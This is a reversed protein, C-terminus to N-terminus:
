KETYRRVETPQGNRASELAAEVTACIARGARADVITDRSSEIAQVFNEMLLYDNDIAQRRHRFEPAPQGRYYVAVEPRAESVILAGETGLVHLKIEGIDPHSAVGIRGICLTGLIDRDMELSVTALDDVHNDANVQHFHCATRAFVRNVEAGTLMRIYALPYIGEIQLEGMPDHGLGGDSGDVHAAIQHELWNLPPDNPNRSGKPPGADKSFYFDVHIAYIRGIAGSEITERAHVLAPLFNRNWLLFKVRNRAVAEVLRDCEALRNSMPKDQVIHLGANAARISLDCHREAEPSVVAVQVDYDTLAQAINRVYPIKYEDAFKQNREHVWDPQNPDDAVVALEFRPHAAVGRAVYAHKVVSLVACRYKKDNKEV